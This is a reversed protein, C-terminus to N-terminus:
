EGPDRIFLFRHSPDWPQSPDRWLPSRLRLSGQGQEDREWSVYPVYSYPKVANQESAKWSLLVAEQPTLFREGRLRMLKGVQWMYLGGYPARFRKDWFRIFAFIAWLWQFFAHPVKHVASM